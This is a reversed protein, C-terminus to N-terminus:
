NNVLTIIKSMDDGRGAGLLHRFGVKDGFIQMTRTIELETHENGMSELVERRFRPDYRSAMM